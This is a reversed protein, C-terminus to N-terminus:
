AFGVALGTALVAAIGAYLARRSTASAAPGTAPATQTTQSLSQGRVVIDTVRVELAAPPGGTSGAVHIDELPESSFAFQTLPTFTEGAPEDSALYTATGGNQTIRLRGSKSTTWVNKM